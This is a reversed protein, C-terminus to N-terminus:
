LSMGGVPMKGRGTLEVDVPNEHDNTRLVTIVIQSVEPSDAFQTVAFSRAALGLLSARVAQDFEPSNSSLM